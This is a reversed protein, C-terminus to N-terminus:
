RFPFAPTKTKYGHFASRTPYAFHECDPEVRNEGVTTAVTQIKTVIEEVKERFERKRFYSSSRLTIDTFDTYQIAQVAPPLDDGLRIMVPIIAKFNVGPLRSNGLSTMTAWELGCWQHSEHYYIPACVAVMTLSRCLADKLRDPWLDGPSLVAEDLFVQPEPVYPALRSEIEEKLKRACNSIDQSATHPWSIFCHYEYGADRLWGDIDPTLVM